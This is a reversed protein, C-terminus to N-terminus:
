KRSGQRRSGGSSIALDDTCGILSSQWKRTAAILLPLRASSHHVVAIVGHLPTHYPTSIPLTTHHLAKLITAHLIIHVDVTLLTYYPITHYPITHYPITHYPIYHHPLTYYPITHYPITHYTHYAATCMTPYHASM